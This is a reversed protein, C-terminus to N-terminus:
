PVRSALSSSTRAEALEIIRDADIGLPEVVKKVREWVAEHVPIGEKRRKQEERFGREGPMLIETFGPALRSSKAQDIM